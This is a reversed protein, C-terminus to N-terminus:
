RTPRGVTSRAVRGADHCRRALRDPDSSTSTGALNSVAQWRRRLDALSRWSQSLAQFADDPTGRGLQGIQTLRAGYEAVQRFVAAQLVLRGYFPTAEPVPVAQVMALLEIAPYGDPRVRGHQRFEGLVTVPDVPAGRSRMEGILGYVEGCLPGAFDTPRLWRDVEDYLAPTLLLGGVTAYEPDFATTMAALNQTCNGM